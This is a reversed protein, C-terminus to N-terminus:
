RRQTSVITITTEGRFHLDNGLIGTINIPYERGPQFEGLTELAANLDFRVALYKKRLISNNKNVADWEELLAYEEPLFWNGDDHGMVRKDQKVSSPSIQYNMLLKTADVDTVQYTNGEHDRINKIICLITTRNFKKKPKSPHKNNETYHRNLNWHSPFLKIDATLISDPVVVTTLESLTEDSNFASTQKWLGGEQVFIVPDILISGDASVVQVMLAIGEKYHFKDLIFVQDEQSMMQFMLKPDLNADAFAKRNREASEKTLTNYFWELDQSLLASIRASFTNEPSDYHSQSKTIIPLRVPYKTTEPQSFADVPSLAVLFTLCLLMIFCATNELFSYSMVSGRNSKM